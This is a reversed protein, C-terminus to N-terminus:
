LGWIEIYKKAIDIYNHYKETAMRSAYGRELIEQKKGLFFEIKEVIDLYDPKINVVPYDTLGFHKSFEPENGGLVIKGMALAYIVNMGPGYSYVQDVVINVRGMLELYKDLPLRGDVICEIENPYKRRLYEFANEIIDTGKEGIRNLGHFVVLKQRLINERYKIKNFNIPMLVSQSLNKMGQYSIAYEFAAPIVGDVSCALKENWLRVSPQNWDEVFCWEDPYNLMGQISSYKFVGEGCKKYYYSDGGAALLYSKENIEMLVNFIFENTLKSFLCPSIFQIVDNSSLKNINLLPKIINRDIKGIIGPLNSSLDIESQINKWGDGASAVVADVGLELLGDRLNRHLGSFEGLLLIKKNGM